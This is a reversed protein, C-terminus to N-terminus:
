PTAPRSAAPSPAETKRGDNGGQGEGSSGTVASGADTPDGELSFRFPLRGIVGQGHGERATTEAFRAGRVWSLAARDVIRNRSSTAIGAARVEGCPNLLLQLVVEAHELGSASMASQLPALNPQTDPGRRCPEQLVRNYWETEAQWGASAPPQRSRHRADDFWQDCAERADRCYGIREAVYGHAGSRDIDRWARTPLGGDESLFWWRGEFEGEVITGYAYQLTRGGIMPAALVSRVQAEVDPAAPGRATEPRNQIEAAIQSRLSATYARVILDDQVMTLRSEFRGIGTPIPQPPAPPPGPSAAQAVAPCAFLVAFMAPLAHRLRM